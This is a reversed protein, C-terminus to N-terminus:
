GSGLTGRERVWQLTTGDSGCLVTGDRDTRYVVAGIATLNELTRDHPHGYDNGRGCSIVAYRPSVTRLFPESSSTKSGHHGVKLVDACLEEEGALLSLEEEEEADGTFLFSVSHYTLRVVASINNPNDSRFRPGLVRIEARGLAYRKGPWALEVSAGSVRVASLFREYLAPDELARADAEPLIVVGVPIQRFLEPFSGIHDAHPHTAVVYDLHDVGAARLTQLLKTDEGPPGADVLLSEGECTVLISDGQGVDLFGVCLPTGLWGEAGSLGAKRFVTEWSPIGPAYRPGYTFLASLLFLVALVLAGARGKGSLRRRDLRKEYVMTEATVKRRRKPGTRKGFSKKGQM